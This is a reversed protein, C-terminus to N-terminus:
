AARGFRIADEGHRQRIRDLAQIVLSQKESHPPPTHFLALQSSEPCFDLFWVKMFRLRVRRNCAKLFLKELPGYLDFDWFSTHPLRIQRKIEMQDSYRISLGAKLPFLKRERLRCACKEVLGYLARLLMRDDNEDEPFTIEESIMPRVPAPYVPTLDIGIARQHIVFAQRGFILRLRGTDLAALERVRSISLEHLLIKKRIRGIGPVVAVKLPAMFSAERGHDVDMVGESPIVQSAISSVMKNGAVGVTGSLYLRSKIEKKLYFATDRARGWLRETGTVDLYIHGPRSPEWLPTYKAAVEGLVKSAKETLGPDPPLITLGPCFKKAKSFSM